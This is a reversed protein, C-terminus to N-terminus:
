KISMIMHALAQVSHSLSHTLLLAARGGFFWPGAERLGRGDKRKKTSYVWVALARPCGGGGGRNSIEEERKKASSAWVCCPRSTLHRGLGASAASGTRILRAAWATLIRSSRRKASAAPITNGSASTSSCCASGSSCPPPSSASGTGSSRSLPRTSPTTGTPVSRPVSCRAGSGHTSASLAALSAACLVAATTAAAVAAVAVHLPLTHVRVATAVACATRVDCGLARLGSVCPKPPQCCPTRASPRSPPIM